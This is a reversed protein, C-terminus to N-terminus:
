RYASLLVEARGVHWRAPVCGDVFGLLCAAAPSAELLMSSHGGTGVTVDVLRLPRAHVLLARVEDAMVPEHLRGASVQSEEVVCDM